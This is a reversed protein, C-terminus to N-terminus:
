SQLAVQGESPRMHLGENISGKLHCCIRWVAEAHRVHPDVSCQLPASSDYSMSFLRHFAVSLSCGFEVCGVHRGGHANYPRLACGRVRLLAKPVVTADTRRDCRLWRRDICLVVRKHTKKGSFNNNNNAILWVRSSTM